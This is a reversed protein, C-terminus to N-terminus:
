EGDPGVDADAESPGDTDDGADDLSRVVGPFITEVTRFLLNFASKGGIHAKTFTDKLYEAVDEPTTEKVRADAIEEAFEDKFRDITRFAKLVDSVSGNEALSLLQHECRVQSSVGPCLLGDTDIRAASLVLIYERTASAISKELEKIDNEITVRGENKFMSSNELVVQIRGLKKIRDGDSDIAAKLTTMWKKYEPHISNFQDETMGEAVLPADNGAM